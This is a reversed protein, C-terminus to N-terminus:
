KPRRDQLTGRIKAGGRENQVERFLATQKVAPTSLQLMM